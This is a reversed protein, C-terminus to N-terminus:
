EFENEIPSDYEYSIVRVGYGALVTADDNWWIGLEEGKEQSYEIFLRPSISTIPEFTDTDVYSPDGMFYRASLNLDLYIEGDACTKLLLYGRTSELRNALETDQVHSDWEVYSGDLVFVVGAFECVFVGSVTEQVGDVEYTVSFNFSGEKIKPEESKKCGTLLLSVALILVVITLVKRLRM